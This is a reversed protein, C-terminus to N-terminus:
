AAASKYFRGVASEAARTVDVERQIATEQLEIINVAPRAAGCGQPYAIRQAHGTRAGTLQGDFPRGAADGKVRCARPRGPGHHYHIHVQSGAPTVRDDKLRCALVQSVNILNLNRLPRFYPLRSEPTPLLFYSEQEENGVGWEGSGM